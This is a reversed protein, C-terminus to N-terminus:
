QCERSSGKYIKASDLEFYTQLSGRRRIDLTASHFSGGLAALHAFPLPLPELGWDKLARILSVQHREVLVRKPDLMLLNLSVWPSCLSFLPGPDPPPAKLLEWTKLIPPLRELDIWEPNILARGPGIPILTSDIHMPQRCRSEVLHIRYTQGLHRRLWDIGALNTTNSRMVFLDRGCRAFDAGDFVPEKESIGYAIPETDRPVRYRSNYFSDQLRPRPAVTWRSGRRHYDELLYRYALGECHRSRLSAPAEVIEDGLVLLGHRPFTAATARSRWDPTQLWRRGNLIAPRHVLIGEAQLTAVLGQLERRARALLFEPYPSGSLLSLITRINEKIPLYRLLQRDPLIAGEVRGVIMEELPEWETFSNIPHLRPLAMTSQACCDGDLCHM